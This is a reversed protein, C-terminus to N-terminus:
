PFSGDLSDVMKGRVFKKLLDVAWDEANSMSTGAIFLLPVYMQALKPAPHRLCFTSQLIKVSCSKCMAKSGKVPQQHVDSPVYALFGRRLTADAGSEFM